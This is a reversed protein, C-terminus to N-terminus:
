NNYVDQYVKWTQRATRDWSFKEARKLGRKRLNSHLSENTLIKYMEDSLVDTEYPDVMIGADGVVEPLSSTNSTIVPTGCAMAELPPLGFGEYLSPYVFLDAANYFKVLDEDPVYGTFIIEDNLGLRNITEFIENYKWGKQGIIILKHKIENTILENFAKILTPINKRKELTGVCLIFPLKLKYKNKLEEKVLEMHPLPKYRADAALPVVRIKEEPIKLYNICDIKTNMSDTIIADVKSKILKLTSNWLIANKKIHTEPFLLPTLDHITLIKKLNRNLFFPTIQTHYHAPVHLVDIKSKNIAYPMSLLNTLFSMKKIIVDNTKHYITDGTRNYHILSLEKSKKLKVMNQLISYLYNDIGTKQRDIIWSLIGVKMNECSRGM